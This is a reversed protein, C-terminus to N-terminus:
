SYQQLFGELNGVQSGNPGPYTSDVQGLIWLDDPKLFEVANWFGKEPKPATSLKIEIAITKNGKELVLDVENGSSDRYFMPKWRPMLTCINEIIYSEYSNGAVPHGLLDNIEEIGLLTHLLGSDRIYVKPSKILRKGVNTSFPPLTRIIFTQELIDIYSRATHHSVGLSKGLNSYNVVHGHTHAIMTWFRELTRAPISYGLQPIDRELFTKIYNLRWEFSEEDDPKLLSGPYGGRLWHEIRNYQNLTEIRNFPTIDIYAIRGALTQSSQAILDRSASGLILFQGNSHSKDIHSRLVSFIEPLLQVEDLCILKNTNQDLFLEGDTEIKARDSKLELDLYLANGHASVIKKALTSKGVQRAGLLAVVPFNALRKEITQELTRPLYKQM